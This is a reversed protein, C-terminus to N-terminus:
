VKRHLEESSLEFYSFQFDMPMSLLRARARLVLNEGPVM